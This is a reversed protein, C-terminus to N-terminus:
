VLLFFVCVTAWDSAFMRARQHLEAGAEVLISRAWIRVRTGVVRAVFDQGHRIIRPTSQLFLLFASMHPQPHRHHQELQLARSREIPTVALDIPTVVVFPLVLCHM